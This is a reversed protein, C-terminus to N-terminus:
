GGLVKRSTYLVGVAAAWHEAVLTFRIGSYVDLKPNGQVETVAFGQKRKGLSLRGGARRRVSLRRGAVTMDIALSSCPIGTSM